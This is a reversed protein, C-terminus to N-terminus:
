SLMQLVYQVSEDEGESRHHQNCASMQTHTHIRTHTCAHTRAHKGAHITLTDENPNILPFRGHLTPADWDPRRLSLCGILLVCAEM